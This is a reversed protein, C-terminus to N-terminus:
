RVGAAARGVLLSRHTARIFRERELYPRFLTPPAEPPHDIYARLAKWKRMVLDSTARVVWSVDWPEDESFLRSLRAPTALTLYPPAFFWRERPEWPPAKGPAATSGIAAAIAANALAAASRRDFAQITQGPGHSLVLDPREERLIESIRGQLSVRDAVSLPPEAMDLVEIRSVGLVAASRAALARRDADAPAPDGLVPLHALRPAIVVVTIRAGREVLDTIAGGAYYAEDGLHAALCVASRLERVPGQLPQGGIVKM